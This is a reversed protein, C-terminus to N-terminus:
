PNPFSSCASVGGGNRVHRNANPRFTPGAVFHHTKRPPIREVGSFARNQHPPERTDARVHGVSCRTPRLASHPPCRLRTSHDASM